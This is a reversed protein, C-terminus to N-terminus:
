QYYKIRTEYLDNLFATVREEVKESEKKISSDIPFMSHFCDEACSYIHNLVSCLFPKCYDYELKKMWRQGYEKRVEIRSQDEADRLRSYLRDVQSQRYATKKFLPLNDTLEEEVWGFHREWQAIVFNEFARLNQNDGYWHELRTLGNNDSWESGNRYFHMTRFISVPRSLHKNVNMELSALSHNVARTIDEFPHNESNNTSFDLYFRRQIHSRFTGSLGNKKAYKWDNIWWNLAYDVSEQPDFYNRLPYVFVDDYINFFGYLIETPDQLLELFVREFNLAEQLDSGEIYNELGRIIATDGGAMYFRVDLHELSGMVPELHWDEGYCELYVLHRDLDTDWYGRMVPRNFTSKCDLLFEEVESIWTTYTGPAPKTMARNLIDRNVTLRVPDDIENFSVGTTLTFDEFGNNRYETIWQLRLKFMERELRSLIAKSEETVPNELPLDLQQRLLIQDLTLSFTKWCDLSERYGTPCHGHLGTRDFYIRASRDKPGLSPLASHDIELSTYPYLFRVQQYGAEQFHNTLEENRLSSGDCIFWLDPEERYETPLHTFMEERWNRDWLDSTTYLPVGNPTLRVVSKDEVDFASVYVRGCDDSLLYIKKLNTRDTLKM